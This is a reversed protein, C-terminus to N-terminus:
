FIKKNFLFEVRNNKERGEPTTNDAIPDVSGMGEYEVQEPRIGPKSLFYKAVSKARKESLKKSIKDSFTNDTYVLIKVKLNPDRMLKKSYKDLESFSSSFIKDSLLGFTISQSVVRELWQTKKDNKGLNAKSLISKLSDIQKQMQADKDRRESEEININKELVAVKKALAPNDAIENKAEENEIKSYKLYNFVSTENKEHQTRKILFGISIEHSGSSAASLGGIGYEYTYFIVLNSSSLLGLGLLISNDANYAIETWLRNKYKLMFGLSYNLPASETARLVATPEIQYKGRTYLYSLYGFYHRKLRYFASNNNGIKFRMGITQPMAFGLNLGYGNMSFSLGIDFANVVLKDTNQLMPDLQTGYSRVTSFDLQNHFFEPSLSASFDIKDSIKQHYAYVASIFNQSFNGAKDALIDFGLGMRANLPGQINFALTKPAGQIGIWSQRFTLFSEVDGSYGVNAPILSSRNVFYQNYVPIQQAEVFM